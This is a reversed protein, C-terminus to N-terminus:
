MTKSGRRVPFGSIESAGATRHFWALDRYLPRQHSLLGTVFGTRRLFGATPSTLTLLPRMM